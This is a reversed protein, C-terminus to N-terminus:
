RGIVGPPASSETGWVDEDEVLWTSPQKPSSGGGMPGGGGMPPVMPMGSQSQGARAALAAEEAAVGAGAANYRRSTAPVEVGEGVVRGDSGIVARTRVGTGRAALGLGDEAAAVTGTRIPDRPLLPGGPEVATFSTGRRIMPLPEVADATFQRAPAATLQRPMLLPQGNPGLLTGNPGITSGKPVTLPHGTADLLPDGDEDLLTGDAAIRTGTPVTLQTGGGVSGVADTLTRVHAPSESGLSSGKPVTLPKGDPGPVPKGDPGLVAGDATIKSGEPVTLATGKPARLPDGDPGLVTGDPGVTSGKPVTLPKGDTATVPKGDPGTITGDANVHSGQPVRLPMDEPTPLPNGDPGLVTGNADVRSGAPVTLPKGNPGKVLNGDPGTVTGDPNVKSGKPVTLPANGTTLPRGDPGLVSDGLKSGKPVVIPKGDAGLVPKGDPGLVVGHPTVVSGEPVTLPKGDAGLVPKGDPGLVPEGSGGNPTTIGNPGGVPGIGTVAPNPVPVDAPGDPGGVASVDAPGDLNPGDLHPGDVDTPGTVDTPGKIDNPGGITTPGTINGTGNGGGSHTPPLRLPPPTLETNHFAAATARYTNEMRGIVGNATPDLANQVSTRWAEAAEQSIKTWFDEHEPNGYNDFTITARNDRVEVHASNLKKMVNEVAAGPSLVSKGENWATLLQSRGDSMVFHCGFLYFGLTGSDLQLNINEIQGAFGNMLAKFVGAANGQWDSDAGDVDSAWKRANGTWTTLWGGMDFLLSSANIFSDPNANDSGGAALITPVQKTFEEWAKTLRETLKVGVTTVYDDNSTTGGEYNTYGTWSVDVWYTYDKHDPVVYNTSVRGEIWSGTAVDSRTTVKQDSGSYILLADEWTYPM